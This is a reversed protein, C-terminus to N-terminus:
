DRASETLYSIANNLTTINDNFHGIAANCKFCLLGRPHGTNHDHDICFKGSWHHPNETGCIACKGDQMMLVHQYISEDWQYSLRLHKERKTEGTWKGSGKKRPM